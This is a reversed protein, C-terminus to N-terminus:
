NFCSFLDTSFGISRLYVKKYKENYQENCCHEKTISDM